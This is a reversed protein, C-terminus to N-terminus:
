PAAEQPVVHVPKDRVVRRMRAVDVERVASAQNGWSSRIFTLIQALQANPLHEFGPMSFAMRDHPTHPTRGGALTVQVLSSPDDAFVISNGALAPYIRPMGRGDARH